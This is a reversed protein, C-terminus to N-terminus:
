PRTWVAETVLAENEEETRYGSRTKRVLAGVAKMAKRSPPKDSEVLSLLNEFETLPRGEERLMEGYLKLIPLTQKFPTLESVAPPQTRDFYAEAQLLFATVAPDIIDHRVNDTKESVLRLDLHQRARSYHLVKVGEPSVREPAVSKLIRVFENGNSPIKSEVAFGSTDIVRVLRNQADFEAEGLYIYKEKTRNNELYSDMGRHGVGSIYSTELLTYKEKGAADFMKAFAVLRLQHGPAVGSKVEGKACSQAFALLDEDVGAFAPCASSLALSFLVARFM